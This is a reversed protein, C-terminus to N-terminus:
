KYAEAESEKVLKWFNATKDWVIKDKEYVARKTLAAPPKVQPEQTSIEIGSPIFSEIESTKYRFEGNDGYEEDNEPRRKQYSLRKATRM